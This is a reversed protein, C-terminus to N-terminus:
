SIYEPQQVTAACEQRNGLANRPTPILHQRAPTLAGQSRCPRGRHRVARDRMVKEHAMTGVSIQAMFGQHRFLGHEFLIKEAVQEPSGVVLAGGCSDASGIRESLWM